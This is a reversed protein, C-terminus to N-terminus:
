SDYKHKDLMSKIYKRDSFYIFLFSISDNDPFDRNTPPLMCDHGFTNVTVYIKNNRYIIKGHKKM